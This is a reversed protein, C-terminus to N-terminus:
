LKHKNEKKLSGKKKLTFNNKKFITKVWNKVKQLYTNLDQIITYLIERHKSINKSAYPRLHEKRKQTNIIYM